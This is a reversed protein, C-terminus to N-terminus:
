KKRKSNLLKLNKLKRIKVNKLKKNSQSRKKTNIKSSLKFRSSNPYIVLLRKQNEKLSLSSQTKVM